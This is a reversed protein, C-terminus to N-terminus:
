GIRRLMRECKWAPYIFEFDSRMFALTPYGLKESNLFVTEGFQAFRKFWVRGDIHKALVYDGVRAPLKTALTVRDGAYFKPEMSEGEIAIAFASDGGDIIKGTQEQTPAFQEGAYDEAM